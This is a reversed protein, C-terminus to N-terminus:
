KKEKAAKIKDRMIRIMQELLEAEYEAFEEGPTREVHDIVAQLIQSWSIYAVGGVSVHHPFRSM